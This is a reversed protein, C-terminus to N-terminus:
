HRLVSHLEANVVGNTRGLTRLARETGTGTNTSSSSDTCHRALAVPSRTNAPGSPLYRGRGFDSPPHNADANRLAPTCGIVGCWRRCVHADSAIEAPTLTSASCRIDPCVEAFTM